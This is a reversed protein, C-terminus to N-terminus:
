RGGRKKHPPCNQKEMEEKKSEKKEEKGYAIINFPNIFSTLNEYSLYLTNM